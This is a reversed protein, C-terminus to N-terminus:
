SRGESGGKEEGEPKEKEEEEKRKEAELEDLYSMRLEFLVHDILKAENENLNGKTKEKLMGLMDISMRAQELDREVKQTIPNMLKGMQQMAATQFTLVLQAFLAENSREQDPEKAM